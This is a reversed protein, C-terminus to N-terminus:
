YIFNNLRRIAQLKDKNGIKAEKISNKLIQTTEDMLERNVPYPVGDKGGHAYSYKVPDKWSPEAGYILESVLTLARITKPGVGKMEVFEEYNKPQLEYANEVAKWNINWPMNIVKIKESFDMLTKQNCVRFHKKLHEPNSRVLDTSIKRAEESKSSTMNLVRQEQSDCCIASHPENVFSKIGSTWHYRRAYRNNPNMGQQIVTWKGKESFVMIHHYLQYDDQVLSNDVKASMKSAYKLDETKKSALSFVESTEEIEKPAKRSYKGKGGVVKIGYEEPVIAEKLAACTVTTAGSSHWDFGLVCCLAQFWFPDSLKKLFEETGFEYVLVGTIERGLSVM